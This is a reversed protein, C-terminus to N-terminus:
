SLRVHRMQELEPSAALKRVMILKHVRERAAALEKHMVTVDYETFKNNM